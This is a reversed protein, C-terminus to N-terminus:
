KFIQEINSRPSLCRFIVSEGSFCKIIIVNPHFERVFAIILFFVKMISKLLSKHITCAATIGGFAFLFARLLTFVSNICALLIYVMMYYRLDKEGDIQDNQILYPEANTSLNTTNGKESDSVWYALWWDTLNRSFQMTTIALLISISLIHGIAKWYSIYVNFHVTGTERAEENLLSDNSTNDEVKTSEYLVSSAM